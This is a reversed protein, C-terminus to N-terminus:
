LILIGGTTLHLPLKGNSLNSWFGENAGASSESKKVLAWEALSFIPSKPGGCKGCTKDCGFHAEMRGNFNAIGSPLFNGVQITSKPRLYLMNNTGTKNPAFMFTAAEGVFGEHNTASALICMGTKGPNTFIFPIIANNKDAFELAKTVNTGKHSQFYPGDAPSTFFEMYTATESEEIAAAVASHPVDALKNAQNLPVNIAQYGPVGQSIDVQSRSHAANLHNFIVPAVEGSTLVNPVTVEEAHPNDITAALAAVIGSGNVFTPLLM